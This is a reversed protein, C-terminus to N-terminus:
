RVFYCLSVWEENDFNAKCAIIGLLQKEGLVLALMFLHEFDIVFVSNEFDTTFVIIIDSINVKVLNRSTKM